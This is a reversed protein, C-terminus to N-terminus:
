PARGSTSSPREVRSPGGRGPSGSSTLADWRMAAMQICHEIDENLLFREKVLEDAAVRVKNLYDRKGQYREEISLRPDGIAERDSKTRPFPLISGLLPSGFTMLGPSGMTDHRVNWGTYTGLPVAIEPLRIGAMDNCDDDYASVVMSYAGNEAPPYSLEGDQQSFELHLRRPLHLLSTAGPICLLKDLCEERRVASGDRIRPIRSVPPEIGEHVWRDLAYLLARMAPRYDQVNIPNETIFGEATINTIPLTGPSHQTGSLYYLRVDTPPELDRTADTTTHTLSAGSWWYEMGSNVHIVKPMSSSQRSRDLLGRNDESFVDPTADFAFPYLSGPARLINTSPQGFRLNFEGRRSSGTHPMMGDYARRGLEDQNFGWYLFERLWRGNMSHGWGYAYKVRGNPPEGASESGYKFFAAVDRFGAFALGIVPAGVATYSLEYVKGPQFGSTLYCYSPDPILMGEELRAFHWLDRPILRAPADHHDRVTLAASTDHVNATPYPKHGLDSLLHQFTPTHGWWQIFAPGEIKRGQRLAEPFFARIREPSEPVDWQIGLSLVSYGNRMLYGNGPEVDAAGDTRRAADNLMWLATMNGRNPSDVLLRGTERAWLPSLLHFESSFEVLGDKNRPALDLDCIAQNVEARPDVSFHILGALYEYPGAEGFPKSGQFPGRDTIEIRTVAM